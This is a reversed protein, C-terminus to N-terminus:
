AVFSCLFDSFFNSLITACFQLKYENLFTENIVSNYIEEQSSNYHVGDTCFNWYNPEEHQCGKGFDQLARVYITKKDELIKVHEWHMNEMPMVRVFVKANEYKGRKLMRVM